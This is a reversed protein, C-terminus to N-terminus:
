LQPNPPPRDPTNLLYINLLYTLLYTLTTPTDAYLPCLADMSTVAKHCVLCFMLMPLWPSTSECTVLSVRLACMIGLAICPISTHCLCLGAATSHPWTPFLLASYLLLHCMSTDCVGGNSAARGSRNTEM